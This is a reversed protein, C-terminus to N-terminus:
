IKMAIVIKPSIVMPTKQKNWQQPDDCANTKLETNIETTTRLQHEVIVIKRKM